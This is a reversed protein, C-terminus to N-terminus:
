VFFGEPVCVDEGTRSDTILEYGLPCSKDDPDGGIPNIPTHGGPGGGGSTPIPIVPIQVPTPDAPITETLDSLIKESIQENAEASAQIEEIQTEDVQPAASNMDALDFTSGDFEQQFANVLDV